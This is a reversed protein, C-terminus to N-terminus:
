WRQFKSAHWLWHGCRGRKITCSIITCWLIVAKSSMNRLQTQEDSLSATPARFPGSQPRGGSTPNILVQSLRKIVKDWRKGAQDLKNERPSPKQSTWSTPVCEKQLALWHSPSLGWWPWLSTMLMLIQHWFHKKVWMCSRSTVPLLSEAPVTCLHALASIVHTERAGLLVCPSFGSSGSDRGLPEKLMKLSPSLTLQLCSWM